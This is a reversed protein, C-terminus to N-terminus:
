CFIEQLDSPLNGSSSLANHIFVIYIRNIEGLSPWQQCEEKNFGRKYFEM